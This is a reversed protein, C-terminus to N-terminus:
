QWVIRGRRPDIVVVRERYDDNVAIDDNPLAMTRSPHDLQGYGGTPGYRWLVRGAHRAGRPRVIFAAASPRQM